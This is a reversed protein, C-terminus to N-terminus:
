VSLDLSLAHIKGMLEPGIASHVMRHRKIRSLGDFAQSKLRVHFHSEGGEPYGAHGIHRESEDRVEIEARDFVEALRSEIERKRSM